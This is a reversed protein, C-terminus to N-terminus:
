NFDPSGAKTRGVVGWLNPGVKKPGGKTFDHCSACNRTVAEEGRKDDAKALLPGIPEEAAPPPTQTAPGGHEPVKIEYGPKALPIPAFVAGAAINLAVLILCTGLIAGLIKNMEFSDM